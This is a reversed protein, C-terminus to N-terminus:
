RRTATMMYNVDMNSTLRFEDVFPVYMVGTERAPELRSATFAARLEEPTVLKDYTHTGKPLWRLV